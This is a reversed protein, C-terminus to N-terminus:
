GLKPPLSRLCPLKRRRQGVAFLGLPCCKPLCSKPQTPVKLLEQAFFASATKTHTHAVSRQGRERITCYGRFIITKIVCQDISKKKIGGNPTHLIRRVLFEDLSKQVPLFLPIILVLIRGLSVFFGFYVASFFYIFFFFDCNIVFASLCDSIWTEM